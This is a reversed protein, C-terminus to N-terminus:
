KGTPRPAEEQQADREATNPTNVLRAYSTPRIGHGLQRAFERTFSAGYFVLLCTYSVWLLVLVVSGAAGFTSQPNSYGLYLGILFKGLTFLLATILAGVWVTRWEVRADPLVKFIAAFLLTAMGLSLVIDAAQALYLVVEGFHVEIYESIATVMASLVMSILLLFGISVVVGLSLVRDLLVKLVGASPRPEVGWYDNISRQLEAFLGTAGFLLVGIGTITAWINRSEIRANLALEEIEKKDEVGILASVETVMRQRVAAEDMFLGAVTITILLLAPLSFVAYYAAAAGRSFPAKNWFLEFASKAIEGLTKWPLKVKAM